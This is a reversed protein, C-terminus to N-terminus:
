VHAVLRCRDSEGLHDPGRDAGNSEVIQGFGIAIEVEALVRAGVARAEQVIQLIQLIAAALDDREIRHDLLPEYGEDVRLVRQGHHRALFGDDGVLVM